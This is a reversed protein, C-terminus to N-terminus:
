QEPCAPIALQWQGCQAGVVRLFLRDRIRKTTGAPDLNASERVELCCGAPQNAKETNAAHASRIDDLFNLGIIIVLIAALSLGVVMLADIVTKVVPKM